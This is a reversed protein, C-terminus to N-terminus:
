RKALGKPAKDSRMLAEMEAVFKVMIQKAHTEDRPSGALLLQPLASLRPTTIRTARGAPAV